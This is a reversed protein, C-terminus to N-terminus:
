YWCSIIGETISLTEDTFTEATISGTSIIDGDVILPTIMEFNKYTGDDSLFNTGTGNDVLNDLIAKNSHTHRAATNAAVNVNASVKAETYYKNVSGERILDADFARWTVGGDTTIRFYTHLATIKNQWVVGNTSGQIYTNGLTSLAIKRAKLWDGSGTDIRDIMLVLEPEFGTPHYSINESKIRAGSM